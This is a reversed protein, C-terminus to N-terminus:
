GAQFRNSKYPHIMLINNIDLLHRMCEYMWVFGIRIGM